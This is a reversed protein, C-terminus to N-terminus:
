RRAPPATGERVIRVVIRKLEKDPDESRGQENLQTVRALLEQARATNGMKRYAQGLLYLPAPNDPDLTAARELQEIAKETDGRRLLAKGLEARPGALTPDLKIAAEFAAIAEAGEPAAADIGTRMLAIGLMYPVVAERAGAKIGERLLDVARGANGSQMWAMALAVDPAPGGLGFRRATEFEREAEDVLGKMVLLVGRYVHLRGSDPKYKLGVDLIEMGLDFNEHDLCLLSLDLYHQEESPELRAATRLADYAEQIRNAGVYARSVLNFLEGTRQNARFLEQAVEIAREHEGAEVLMLMQNYGAAYPDKYGARAAGFQRAADAYVGAGGLLMGAEFRSTADGAPLRDLLAVARPTQGQELLCTAFHLTWAPNATARAGSKEFHALAAALQKRAFHIEGLHLHAIEDDAVVGLVEKFLDEAEADRGANFENVALNKKAPYFSPDIALAQRFRRNAEDTRGAGTLAIGLLNLTKLDRPISSLARGLLSIAPQFDGNQVLLTACELPAQAPKCEPNDVARSSQPRPAPRSASASQGHFGTSLFLLVLSVILV